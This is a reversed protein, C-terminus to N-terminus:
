YQKIVKWTSSTSDYVVWAGNGSSLSGTSPDADTDFAVDGDLAGTTTISSSANPRIVATSPGTTSSGLAIGDSCRMFGSSVYLNGVTVDVSGTAEYIKLLWEGLGPYYQYIGFGRFISSEAQLLYTNYTNQLYVRCYTSSDKNLILDGDFGANSEGKVLGNVHFTFLPTTTGVGVKNGDITVVETMTGDVVNSLDIRGEESSSTNDKIIGEMRAYDTVDSSYDSQFNITGVIDGNQPGPSTYTRTLDLTDVAWLANVAFLFVVAASGFVVSSKPSKRRMM